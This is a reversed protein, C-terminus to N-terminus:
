VHDNMGLIWIIEPYLLKQLSWIEERKQWSSRMFVHLEKGDKLLQVASVFTKKHVSTEQWTALYLDFCIKESVIRHKNTNEERVMIIWVLFRLFFLLIHQPSGSLQSM